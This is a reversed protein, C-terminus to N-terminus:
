RQPNVSVGIITNLKANGAAEMDTVFENLRAIINNVMAGTIPPRGDPKPTATAQSGDDIITSDNPILATINQGNASWRSLIDKAKYYLQAEADAATRIDNNCFQIALPSTVDAM